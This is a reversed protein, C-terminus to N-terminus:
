IMVSAGMTVMPPIHSIFVQGLLLKHNWDIVWVACRSPLTSRDHHIVFLSRQCFFQYTTDFEPTNTAVFSLYSREWNYRVQCSVLFQWSFQGFWLLGPTCRIFDLYYCHQLLQELLIARHSRFIIWLFPEMCIMQLIGFTNSIFFSFSLSYLPFGYMMLRRVPRLSIRCPHSVKLCFLSDCVGKGSRSNSKQCVQFCRIWGCNRQNKIYMCHM